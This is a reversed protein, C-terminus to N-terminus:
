RHLWGRGNEVYGRQEMKDIDDEKGAAWFDLVSQLKTYAHFAAKDRFRILMRADTDVDQSAFGMWTLIGGDATPQSAEIEPGLAALRAVVRDRAEPTKCKIKVDYMLGCKTCDGPKDLFGGVRSYHQLDFSTTMNPMAVPIFKKQMTDSTFHTSYLSDKKDYVEFAFMMPTNDFNDAFDFPIGFYYTETTPEEAWVYKALEDYAGQWTNYQGPLFHVFAFLYLKNDQTTYGM